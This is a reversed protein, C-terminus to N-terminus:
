VNENWTNGNWTIGIWGSENLINKGWISNLDGYRFDAIGADCARM